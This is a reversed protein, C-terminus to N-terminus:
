APTRYLADGGPSVLRLSALRRSAVRRSAVRRSAVCECEAGRVHQMRLACRRETESCLSVCTCLVLDRRTPPGPTQPKLFRRERHDTIPYFIIFGGLGM